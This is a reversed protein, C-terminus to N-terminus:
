SKVVIYGAPALDNGNYQQKTDGYNAVIKWGNEYSTVSLSGQYEQSTICQDQLSNVLTQMEIAADAMGNQMLGDFQSNYLFNLKTDKLDYSNCSTVRYTLSVGSELAKTCLRKADTGNNVAKSAMSVYGHLVMSYFPVSYTEMDFGSSSLPIEYLCSVMPLLYINGSEGGTLHGGSVTDNLIQTYAELLRQRDTSSNKNFDNYLEEGMRAYVIGTSMNKSKKLLKASTNLMYSVNTYNWSGFAEKWAGNSLQRYHKQVSLGNLIKVFQNERFLSWSHDFRRILDYVVYIDSADAVSTLNKYGKNGGLKPDFQPGTVNQDEYGGKTFGYLMLNVNNIGKDKLTQQMTGVQDFTTATVTSSIPIGLFSTNKQVGGFIELTLPSSQEANRKKLGYKEVLYQRYTQAMGSYNAQDNRMFYFRVSPSTMIRKTDVLTIVREGNDKSQIGTLDNERYVFSTGCTTFGNMSQAYISSAADGKDIVALFANNAKKVGYVPMRITEKSNDSSLLLDQSPDAGYVTERYQADRFAADGFVAIMGSGDPLFVYGDEDQKGAGFNPLLEIDCIKTEGKELVEDFLIQCEIFDDKLDIEIPVTFRESEEDFFYNIKVGSSTKRIEFTNYQVSQAYSGVTVLNGDKNYYSVNVMSQLSKKTSKPLNSENDVGIPFAYWIGGSQKDTIAVNSNNPNVSLSFWANEKVQMFGDALQIVEAQKQPSSETNGNTPEAASVGSLAMCMVLLCCVIRKM